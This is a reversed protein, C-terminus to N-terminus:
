FFFIFVNDDDGGGDDFDDDRIFIWHPIRSSLKNTIISYHYLIHSVDLSIFFLILLGSRRKM